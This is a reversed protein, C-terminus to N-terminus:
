KESLAIEILRKAWALKKRKRPTVSQDEFDFGVLEISSAGLEVALFVSRDGDTFGGFNYLGGSPGCQCTGIVNELQPVYIALADLNDGHDHVVIIAKKQCAELIAPFPGDLDSVVVDPVIGRRLLVAAAGDAAIRAADMRPLADLERDLSPANGFIVAKRGRIREEASPRCDGSYQLLEALLHAGEEDRASSFGFDQLIQNYFPEWTAFQM